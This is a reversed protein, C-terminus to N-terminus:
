TPEADPSPSPSWGGGSRPCGRPAPDGPPPHKGPRQPGRLGPSGRRDGGGLPQRERPGGGPWAPGTAATSTGWGMEPARPWIPRRGTWSLAYLEPLAQQFSAPGHHLGLPNRSEPAGGCSGGSGGTRLDAEGCAPHHHLWLGELGTAELGKSDLPPLPPPAPERSWWPGRPGRSSGSPWPPFPPPPLARFLNLAGRVGLLRPPSLGELPILDDRRLMGFRWQGGDWRAALRVRGGIPGAPCPPSTWPPRDPGGWPALVSRIWGEKQAASAEETLHRHACGGCRPTAGRSLPDGREPWPPWTSERSSASSGCPCWWASAPTCPRTPAWPATEPPVLLLAGVLSASAYIERPVGAPTRRDACGEPDGRRDGHASRLGGRPLAGRLGAPHVSPRGRRHFGGAGVADLM